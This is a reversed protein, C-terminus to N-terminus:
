MTSLPQQGHRKRESQPLVIVSSMHSAVANHMHEQTQDLYQYTPRAIVIHTVPMQVYEPQQVMDVLAVKQVDPRFM